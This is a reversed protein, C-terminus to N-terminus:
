PILVVPPPPPESPSDPIEMNEQPQESQVKEEVISFRWAEEEQQSALSVFISLSPSVSPSASPQHIIPTRSSGSGRSPKGWEHPMTGLSLPHFWSSIRIFDLSLIFCLSSPSLRRVSPYLFAVWWLVNFSFWRPSSFFNFTFFPDWVLDM